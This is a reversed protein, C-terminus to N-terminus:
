ETFQYDVVESTATARGGTYGLCQATGNVYSDVVVRGSYSHM